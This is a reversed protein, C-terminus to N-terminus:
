DEHEDLLRRTESLLRLKKEAVSQPLFELDCNPSIYIGRPQLKEETTRIITKLRDPSELLSNRGDICGCGLMKNFDHEKLPELPTSYFDIGIADVPFDLLTDVVRTADGFYTQLIAKGPACTEYAERAADLEARSQSFISPEDFQFWDYGLGQLHRVAAKLAKAIDDMLDATSQYAKNESMVAFTLPGPLIAKKRGDKPLLDARFYQRLPANGRFAVKENIIPRRYFTNNDFWRTLTAAQIGDFIEAFPRFLDQWNLQGDVFSDLALEQELLILAKADEELISDVKTQPLDGRVGARTAAVLKESRPYVGTLHAEVM